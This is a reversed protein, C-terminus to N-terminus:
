LENWIINVKLFELLVVSEASIMVKKLKMDDGFLSTLSVTINSMM